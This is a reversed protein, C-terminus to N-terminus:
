ARSDQRPFLSFSRAEQEPAGGRLFEQAKDLDGEDAHLIGMYYHAELNRKDLEIVKELGGKAEDTRGRKMYSLSLQLRLPIDKPRSAVERELRSIIEDLAKEDVGM